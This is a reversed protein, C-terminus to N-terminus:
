ICDWSIQGLLGKILVFRSQYEIYKSLQVKPTGSAVVKYSAFMIMFLKNNPPQPKPTILSGAINHGVDRRRPGNIFAKLNIPAKNRRRQQIIRKKKLNPSKTQWVTWQSQICGTKRHVKIQLWLMLLKNEVWPWYWFLALDQPELWRWDVGFWVSSPDQYTCKYVVYTNRM